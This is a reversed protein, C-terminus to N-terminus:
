RIGSIFAAWAAAPMLLAPGPRTKSDRIGVYAVVNAVEVCNTGNEGSYSSKFWPSEDAVERVTPYANIAIDM